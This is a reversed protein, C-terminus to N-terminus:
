IRKLIVFADRFLNVAIREEVIRVDVFRRLKLNRWFFNRVIQLYMLLTVRGELKHYNLMAKSRAM